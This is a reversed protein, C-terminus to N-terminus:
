WIKSPIMEGKEHFIIDVIAREYFNTTQILEKDVREQYLDLGKQLEDDIDAFLTDQQIGIVIIEENYLCIDSIITRALRNAKIPESILQTM